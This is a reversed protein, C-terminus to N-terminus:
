KSLYASQVALQFLSGLAASIDGGVQVQYFLGPSSCTQLTSGINSQFTSVPKNGGTMYWSDNPIPIYYTYLVAIRIGRAKITDCKATNIVSQQRSGNVNEDEVGDTVLFLVEQPSDNATGTGSGPNPMIANIGTFAADFNTDMDNNQVNSSSYNNSYAEYMTLSSAAIKAAAMNSTLTGLTNLGVDFSYTGIRYSANNIGQTATANTVLDQAALNVLDLRLVIGLSRALTYNDVGGPNGLNDGHGSPNKQHCAFACGGPDQSPTAAMMQNIGTQTAPLAMSPSSDLLLYFDINPALGGTAQSTGSLPLTPKGLITAFTNTSTATYSVTVVRKGSVTAVNISVKSPDYTVGAITSAQASFTNLVKATITATNTVNMMAPTISALAAADAANNMQTQRSSALTYDIGMGTLFIIPLASAAFIIAVNAREDRAFQGFGTLAFKLTKLMSVPVSWRSGRRNHAFVKLAKNLLRYL